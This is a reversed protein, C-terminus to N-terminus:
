ATRRAPRQRLPRGDAPQAHRHAHPLRAGAGTPVRNDPAAAHERELTVAVGTEGPSRPACSRSPTSCASSGAPRRSSASPRRANPVGGGRYVPRSSRSCRTAAARPSWSRALVQRHRAHRRALEVLQCLDLGPMDLESLTEAMGPGAVGLKPLCYYPVARRAPYIPSGEPPPRARRLRLRRRRRLARRRGDVHVLEAFQTRPSTRARLRADHARRAHPRGDPARRDDGVRRDLGGARRVGPRQQRQVQARWLVATMAPSPSSSRSCCGHWGRGRRPGSQLGNCENTGVRTIPGRSPGSSRSRAGAGGAPRAGRGARTRGPRAARRAPRPGAHAAQFYQEM